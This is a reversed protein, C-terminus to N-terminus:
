SITDPFFRPYWLVVLPLELSRRTSIQVTRCDYLLVKSDLKLALVIVYWCLTLCRYVSEVLSAMQLRTM